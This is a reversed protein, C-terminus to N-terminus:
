TVRNVSYLKCLSYLGHIMICVKITYGLLIQMQHIFIILFLPFLSFFITKWEKGRDRGEVGVGVIAGVM